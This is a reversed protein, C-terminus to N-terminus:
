NKYLQLEEAEAKTLATAATTLTVWSRITIIM